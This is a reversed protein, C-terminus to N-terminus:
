GIFKPWKYKNSGYKLNEGSPKKWAERKLRKRVKVDRVMFKSIASQIKRKHDNEM